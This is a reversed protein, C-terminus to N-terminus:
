ELVQIKNMKEKYNIISIYFAIHWWVYPRLINQSFCLIMIEFLLALKLAEAINNSKAKVLLIKVFYLVLPIMGLIGNAVLIEGIISMAAGNNLTSYKIGRYQAIMPDVGGLSYGFIPSKKFLKICTDIGELRPASSHAASGNIGLGSLFISFDIKRSMLIAVTLLFIVISWFNTFTKKKIYGGIIIKRNIASLIRYLIYVVTMLWGMRSSSLVISTGILFLAVNVQKEKLITEDKKEFLYAFVVFGMLMYTAYYSPEYSFGNIRAWRDGWNQAVFFDIGVVYLAFQMLGIIAGVVFSYLYTKILWDVSYYKGCFCCTSIAVVVDFILWIFYGLANKLNPSRFCFVFQLAIWILLYSFDRPALFRKSLILHMLWFIIVPFFIFQCFRFNLGGVNVIGVIDFSTTFLALATCIRIIKSNSIM